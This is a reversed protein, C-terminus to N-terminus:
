NGQIQTRERCRHRLTKPTGPIRQPRTRLRDQLQPHPLQHQRRCNQNWYLEQIKRSPEQLRTSNAPDQLSNHPHGSHPWRHDQLIDESSCYQNNNSNSQRASHSPLKPTTQARTHTRRRHLGTRPLSVHVPQIRQHSLFCRYPTTQIKSRKGPREMGIARRPQPEEM